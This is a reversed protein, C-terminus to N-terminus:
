TLRAALGQLGGTRKKDYAVEIADAYQEFSFEFGQNEAWRELDLIEPSRGKAVRRAAENFLKDEATM